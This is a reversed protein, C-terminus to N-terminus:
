GSVVDIWVLGTPLSVPRGDALSFVFPNGRDSGSWRGDYASGQYYFLASGGSELDFDRAHGGGVDEIEPTVWEHAKVVVVMSIRLPQGLAADAMTHRDEVKTYTQTTGDFTYTSNHEAVGFSAAAQGGSLKPAAKSLTFAAAGGEAKQISGGNIYLNNPPLRDRSRYYYGQTDFFTPVPDSILRAMSANSLGSFFNMGHYHRTLKFSIYRGSRVPGVVDPANTFLASTRTIGGETLYEFVMDAAQWGSQDRAGYNDNPVQVLAPYRLPLTHIQIRFVLQSALAWDTSLKHGLRDLGGAGVNLQLAGVPLGKTPFQASKGDAAWALTAPQGNALVTVSSTKMATNFAITLTDGLPVESDQSLATGVSTSVSIVRPVITTTFRWGASSVLHGTADKFSSVTVVYTTLDAWPGVPAWTYTSGNKGPKLDGDLAPRIRLHDELVLKEVPRALTFVLAESTPVEAQGNKVNLTVSTPRSDDYVYLISAGSALLLVITTVVIAGLRFNSRSALKSTLRSLVAPM